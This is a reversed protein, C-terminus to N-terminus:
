DFEVSCRGQKVRDTGAMELASPPTKTFPFGFNVEKIGHRELFAYVDRWCKQSAEVRSRDSWYAEKKRYIASEGLFGNRVARVLRTNERMRLKVIRLKEANERKMRAVFCGAEDACAQMMKRQTIIRLDAYSIKLFQIFDNKEFVKPDLARQFLDTMQENISEGDFFDTCNFKKSTHHWEDATIHEAAIAAKLKKASGFFELLGHAQMWNKTIKSKPVAGRGYASVANNSMSYGSYGAM